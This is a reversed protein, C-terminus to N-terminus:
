TVSIRRNQLCSQQRHWHGVGVMKNHLVGAVIMRDNDILWRGLGAPFQPYSLLSAGFSGITCSAQDIFPTSAPATAHVVDVLVRAPPRVIETRRTRAQRQDGAVH